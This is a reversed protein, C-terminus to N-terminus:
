DSVHDLFRGERQSPGLEQGQSARREGQQSSTRTHELLAREPVALQFLEGARKLSHFLHRIQFM